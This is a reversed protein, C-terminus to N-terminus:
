VGGLHFLAFSLIVKASDALPQVRRKCLPLTSAVQNVSNGTKGFEVAQCKTM